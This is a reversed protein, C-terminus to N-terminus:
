ARTYTVRSGTRFHLDLNPTVPDCSVLSFHTFVTFTGSAIDITMIAQDSSLALIDNATGCQGRDYVFVRKWPRYSM